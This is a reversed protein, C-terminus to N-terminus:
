SFNIKFGGWQVHSFALRTFAQPAQPSSSVSHQCSALLGRFLRTGGLGVEYAKGTEWSLDLPLQLSCTVGQIQILQLTSKALGTLFAQLAQTSKETDSAQKQLGNRHQGPLMNSGWGAAKDLSQFVNALFSPPAMVYGRGDFRDAPYRVTAQVTQGPILDSDSLYGRLQGSSVRPILVHTIPVEPISLTQQIQFPPLDLKSEAGAFAEKIGILKGNEEATGIQPAYILGFSQCLDMFNEWFNENSGTLSRLIWNNVSQHVLPAQKALESLGDIVHSASNSLIRDLIQLPETNLQHLPLAIAQNSKTMRPYFKERWNTVIAHVISNIRAPISEDQINQIVESRSLYLVMNLRQILSTHHVGNVVPSFQGTSAQFAPATDHGEFSLEGDDSTMSAKLSASAQSMSRQQSQGLAAAMEAYPIDASGGNSPFIQATARAFDKLSSALTGGDSLSSGGSTFSASASRYKAPNM